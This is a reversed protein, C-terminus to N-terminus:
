VELEKIKARAVLKSSDLDYEMQMIRGKKTGLFETPYTIIDGVSEDNVIFKMSTTKNKNTVYYEYLYDLVEQANAQNIFVGSFELINEFADASIIPNRKSLQTGDTLNLRVETVEDDIDYDSGDYVGGEINRKVLEGLPYIKILSSRSTDAVACIAFLVQLLAERCTSPELTGTLRKTAIEEAISYPIGPMIESIITTVLQNSYTAGNFIMRDLLGIYDITSLDYLTMSKQRAKDIFFTGLLVGNRRLKIPQKRQFVYNILEKNSLVFNMTSIRLEESTLSMDQFLNLSRLNDDTYVRVVGYVLEQIKLYRYPKNTSRCEIIIKNFNVVSNEIFFRPGNPEIDKESLLTANQYWKINLDTIYDETLTSFWITIGSATEYNSFAIEIVIPNVFNGISNSMSQSWISFNENEPSDPFLRFTGDLLWLDKELTAFKKYEVEDQKLLNPNCFAQINSCSITSDRSATLSIDRYELEIM